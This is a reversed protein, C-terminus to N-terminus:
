GESLITDGHFPGKYTYTLTTRYLPAFGEMATVLGALGAQTDQVSGETRAALNCVISPLIPSPNSLGRGMRRYLDGAVPISLLWAM